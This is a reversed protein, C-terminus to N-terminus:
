ADANFIALYRQLPEIYLLDFKQTHVTLWNRLFTLTLEYNLNDLFQNKAGGMKRFEDLKNMFLDHELMHMDIDNVGASRMLNEETEFHFSLYGAFEDLVTSVVEFDVKTNKLELLKKFLEDIKKHQEDIIDINTRVFCNKAGISNESPTDLGM